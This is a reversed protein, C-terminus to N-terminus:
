CPEWRCFNKLLALGAEGSKELHFQTAILNDKGVISAFTIGYETTAYIHAESAPEPFYGHVFYFEDRTEIGSLVPHDVKVCVSNWGMHPIKLSGDNLNKMDTSFAPVQGKILGLCETNKESSKELSSQSGLCIGLIPKGSKFARKLELDLGYTELSKMAFGASGVGPFVIRDSKEIQAPDKTICNEEGIYNIARAVSTLNGADYDIIAIM